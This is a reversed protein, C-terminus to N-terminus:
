KRECYAGRSFPTPLCNHGQIRRGPLPPTLFLDLLAFCRSSAPGLNPPSSALGGLASGAAVVPVGCARELNAFGRRLDGLAAAVEALSRARLDFRVV